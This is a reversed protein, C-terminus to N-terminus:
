TPRFGYKPASGTFHTAAANAAPMGPMGPVPSPASIPAGGLMPELPSTTPAVANWNPPVALAGIAAGRGLAASVGGGSGGGLADVGGIPVMLGGGLGDAAAAADGAAAGAADGAAAAAGDAAGGASQLGVLDCMTGLWNGPMYFGSSFMTNWLNDNLGLGSSSFLDNFIASLGTGSGNGTLF